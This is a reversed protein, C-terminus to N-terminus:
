IGFLDINKIAPLFFNGKLRPLESFNGSFISDAREHNSGLAEFVLLYICDNRRRNMFGISIRGIEWIGPVRRKKLLFESCLIHQHKQKAGRQPYREGGLM